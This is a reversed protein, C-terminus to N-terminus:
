LFLKRRYSILFLHLTPCYASHSPRFNHVQRTSTKIVVCKDKKGSNEDLM